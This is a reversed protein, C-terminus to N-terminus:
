DGVEELRTNKIPDDVHRGRKHGKSKKDLVAVLSDVLQSRLRKKKLSFHKLKIEFRDKKQNYKHEVSSKKSV